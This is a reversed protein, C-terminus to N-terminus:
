TKYLDLIIVCDVSGNQMIRNNQDRLTIDIRDIVRLRSKLNVYLRETPVEYIKFGHAVKLFFSYLMETEAHKHSHVDHNIYSHEVINCHVEIADVARLNPANPAVISEDSNYFSEIINNPKGTPSEYGLFAAAKDDLYFKLPSTIAVHDSERKILFKKSPINLKLSAIYENIKENLM